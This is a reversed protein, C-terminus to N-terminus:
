RGGVTPQGARAPRAAIPQRAPAHTAPRRKRAHVSTIRCQTASLSSCGNDCHITCVATWLRIANASHKWKTLPRIGPFGSSIGMPLLLHENNYHRQPHPSFCSFSNNGIWRCNSPCIMGQHSIFRQLFVRRSVVQRAQSRGDEGDKKCQVM